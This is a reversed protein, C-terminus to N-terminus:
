APGAALDLLRRAEAMAEPVSDHLTRVSLPVITPPLGRATLVSSLWTAFETVISEDDVVMAAGVFRLIYDFDERTRARQAPSYETVPPYRAALAVMAAEVISARAALVAQGQADDVAPVSLVPPEAAWSAIVESAARADPAWADAGVAEARGPSTAFAPGGVVVPFGADHCAAITRRASPLHIPVSCSMAVGIPAVTRLYRGLHDAPVSAGVFAVDWGEQRLQEAFMRAPLVHWEDEACAVLVEGVGEGTPTSEIAAATLALDVMATAAHEDAVSWQQTQWRVGVQEQVGALVEIAAAFGCERVTETIVTVLEERRRQEIMTLLTDPSPSTLHGAPPPM